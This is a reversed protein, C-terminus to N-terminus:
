GLVEATMSEQGAAKTTMFQGAGPKRPKEGREEPSESFHTRVVVDERWGAHPRNGGTFARGAVM